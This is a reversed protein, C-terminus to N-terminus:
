EIFEINYYFIILFYELLQLYNKLLYRNKGLVRSGYVVKYGKNVFRLFKYYDKPDYELDADQIIVM